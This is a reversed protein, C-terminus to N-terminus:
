DARADPTGERPTLAQTATPYGLAEIRRWYPVLLDRVSKYVPSDLYAAAAEILSLKEYVAAAETAPAQLAQLEAQVVTAFDDEFLDRLALLVDEEHRFSQGERLLRAPDGECIMEVFRRQSASFAQVLPEAPFARQLAYAYASRVFAAALGLYTGVMWVSTGSFISWPCRHLGDSFLILAWLRSPLLELAYPAPLDGRLFSPNILLTDILKQSFASREGRLASLLPPWGIYYSNQSETACDIWYFAAQKLQHNDLVFKRVFELSFEFRFCARELRTSLAPWGLLLEGRRRTTQALGLDLLLEAWLGRESEIADRLPRVHLDDHRLPDHSKDTHIPAYQIDKKEEELELELAPLPAVDVDDNTRAIRYNPRQEANEVLQLWQEVTTNKSAFRLGYTWVPVEEAELRRALLSENRSSALLYLLKGRASETLKQEARVSEALKQEAHLALYFGELGRPFAPLLSYFVAENCVKRDLRATVLEWLSAETPLDKPRFGARKASLWPTVVVRNQPPLLKNVLARGTKDDSHEHGYWSLHELRHFDATVVCVLRPQSLEDLLSPIWRQTTLAKAPVLDFDDLLVVLIHPAQEGQRKKLAAFFDALWRSLKERMGMRTQLGKALYEGYDDPTGSLDLSLENYGPGIHTYRGIIDQLEDLLNLRNHECPDNYRQADKSLQEHVHSLVAMGPECEGPLVSCDLPKLVIARRRLKCWADSSEIPEAAHQCPDNPCRTHHYVHNLLSSKGAGRGGLLGFTSTVLPFCTSLAQEAADAHRNLLSQLRSIATDQSPDLKSSHM